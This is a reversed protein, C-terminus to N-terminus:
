YPAPWGLMRCLARYRVRLDAEDDGHLNVVAHRNSGLWKKERALGSRSKPFELVITGPFRRAIEARRGPDLRPPAPERGFSRLVCSAAAGGLRPLRPVADPDEGCAMALSMAYMDIGDVRAYLDALQSAMRPNFEIIKLANTAPDYFFEMNFFGHSFGAARLVRTAIEMARVQVPRPLRSPYAFRLFAQTGPYMLEDVVGILRAEGRYVFGDLNFQEACYAQEHLMHRADVPVQLRRRCIDDFPRVLREIIFREAPAFRLHEALEAPGDVRRALVSYATKVPKVFSPYPIPIAGAPRSGLECPILGFRLNAEPAVREILERCLYKHQLTLISEVRNGALGLREAVLASTLAGFQENHSIVGALRRGHRRVLREVFREVDFWLLRANDPFSFLDFGARHFRIRDDFRDFGLADWDYDFLLLVERAAVARARLSPGRQADALPHGDPTPAFIPSRHVPEPRIPM